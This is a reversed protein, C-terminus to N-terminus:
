DEELGKDEIKKPLLITFTSGEGERSKVSIVGEHKKIIKGVISLGLGTGEGVKKTTFFSEFISEQVEQSMGTGTDAIIIQIHEPLNKTTIRIEGKDEIADMANGLLNMFVQSLQGPYCELQSLDEDYEKIIEIRGAYRTRLITLTSNINQHIDDLQLDKDDIRSINRLGKIIESAREAGNKIDNILHIVDEKVEKFDLEKKLKAIAALLNQREAESLDHLGEYQEIVELLEDVVIRLSQVGGAVFNIPNSIEHAISATMEGLSAMKEAQVLSSQTEQIEAQATELAKRTEQEQQLKIQLDIQMSQMQDNIASLEETNQRLEEEQQQIDKYATELNDRQAEMEELNQYIEENQAELEGSKEIIEDRQTQLNDAMINFSQILQGIEDRLTEKYPIRVNFNGGSLNKAAKALQQVPRTFTSAIFIALILIAVAALLTITLFRGRMTESAAFAEETDIESMLVWGNLGEIDLPTFSSLVGVDRYDAIVRTDTIGNLAAEVGETKVPQLLITTSQAQMMALTSSDVLNLKKIQTLFENPSQIIFRSDNRMLYDSGILYSEGSEGFGEEEWHGDGTMVKNIEDIPIQFILTGLRNEGRTIPTAMFAAPYQYSPLYAEFDIIQYDDVNGSLRIERFVRGINSDAYPGRLLSTAFDIEKAVSYIIHGTSDDVLFIDYYGFKKLFDSFETHYKQHTQHYLSNSQDNKNAILYQSQLFSIREDTPILGDIEISKQISQHLKQAFVEHYYNGLAEKYDTNAPVKFNFFATRFDAMAQGVTENSGFYQMEKRIRQFYQEIKQKKIERISTLHDFSRERLASDVEQYEVLMVVLLPILGALM